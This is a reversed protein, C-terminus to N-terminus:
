EIKLVRFATCGEPMYDADTELGFLMGQPDGLASLPIKCMISDYTVEASAGEPYIYKDESANYVHLRNGDVSVLINPMKAFPVDDRFGAIFFLFKVGKDSEEPEGFWIWLADDVVAYGIWKTDATFVDTNDSWEASRQRKLVIHPFDGFIENRRVFSLLYFASVRAQSAHQLMAERKRRVEEDTLKLQRWDIVEVVDGFFKEPPSIPLEPHYNRPLPWDPVHVLYPYIKPQPITDGLDALSVMTYLYSAWHDGNVDSPHAVFIKTPKFDKIVSKIDEIVNDATFGKSFSAGREYPVSSLGSLSYSYPKTHDWSFIFMQDTGHDPYGLFILDKEELGLVSEANIAERMRIRGLELFREKWSLALDAIYLILNNSLVSVLDEYFIVSLINNDGCTVYVVKVKAGAKLARQIVGACGIIDDDPHPSIILVRDTKEFPEISPIEAASALAALNCIFFLACFARITIERRTRIKM